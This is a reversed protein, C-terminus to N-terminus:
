FEKQLALGIEQGGHEDHRIANIGYGYTLLWNMDWFARFSLGAGVGFINHWDPADPPVLKLVAWDGYLHGTLAHEQTFQQRLELNAVGFDEALFERTYYGHATVAFPEVGLLNGGINYASLEDLDHGYCGGVHAYFTTQQVPLKGTLGGYVRQYEAHAPLLAGNPGFPEFGTRHNADAAVYLEAARRAILGPQIGGYRFEALLTQTLFDDPLTFDATNDANRYFSGTVNYTGRLNLVLLSPNPITENIFFRADAMDGYFQQKSVLSGDQYPTVSDVYFGGGVGAGIAINTNAPLFYSLEADGYVGAFILRLATNTWPCDNQNFLFFGYGSLQEHGVLPFGTQLILTRRSEVDVQGYAARGLVLTLCLLAAHKITAQIIGGGFHDCSLAVKTPV